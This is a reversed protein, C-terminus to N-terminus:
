TSRTIRQAIEDRLTQLQERIQRVSEELPAPISLLIGEAGVVTVMNDIDNALTRIELLDEKLPMATTRVRGDHPDKVREWRVM